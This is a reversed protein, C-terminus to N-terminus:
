GLILLCDKEVVSKCPRWFLKLGLKGIAGADFGNAMGEEMDRCVDLVSVGRFRELGAEGLPAGPGVVFLLFCLPEPFSGEPRVIVRRSVACCEREEEVVIGLLM